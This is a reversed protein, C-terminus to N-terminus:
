PSNLSQDPSHLGRASPGTTSRPPAPGSRRAPLVVIGPTCRESVVPSPRPAEPPDGDPKGRETGVAEPEAARATTRGAPTRLKDSCGAKSKARKRGRLSGKCCGWFFFFAKALRAQLNHPPIRQLCLTLTIRLQLAPEPLSKQPHRAHAWLRQGCHKM